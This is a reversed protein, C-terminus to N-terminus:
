FWGSADDDQFGRWFRVFHQFWKPRRSLWPDFWYDSAFKVIGLATLLGAVLGYGAFSLGSVATYAKDGLVRVNLPSDHSSRHLQLGQVKGTHPQGGVSWTGVCEYGVPQTRCYNITATTSTGVLYAYYDYAGIGFFGLSVAVGAIAFLRAALRRLGALTGTPRTAAQPVGGVPEEPDGRDM